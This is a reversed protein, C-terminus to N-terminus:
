STGEEPFRHFWSRLRARLSDILHWRSYDLREFRGTRRDLRCVTRAQWLRWWLPGRSSDEFLPQSRGLARGVQDEVPFLEALYPSYLGRLVVEDPTVHYQWLRDSALDAGLRRVGHFHYFRVPGADGQVGHDGGTLTFRAINWPALGYTPPELVSVAGPFDTPWSDLYRQDAYRHNTEDVQHRCWELCQRYWQDLCARGIADNRFGQFSVNFQGTPLGPRQMVASFGHATIFLPKEELQQQISSIESVFWLDADCSIVAGPGYEKLVFRPLCPSLTFYYELRSRNGRAIVLDPDAEELRALPLPVVGPEPNRGLFTFSAPDLCLLYVTPQSGSWHRRLSRVMVLARALYHRDCLTCFVLNTM